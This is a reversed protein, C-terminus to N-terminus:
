PPGPRMKQRPPDKDPRWQWRSPNSTTSSSPSGTCGIPCTGNWDGLLEMSAPLLGGRVVTADILIAAALGVGFGKM